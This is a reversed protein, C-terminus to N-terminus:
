TPKVGHSPLADSEIEEYISNLPSTPPKYFKDDNSDDDEDELM